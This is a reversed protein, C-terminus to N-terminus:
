CLRRCHLRAEHDFDCDLASLDIKRGRHQHRSDQVPELSPRVRTPWSEPTQSRLVPGAGAGRQSLLKAAYTGHRVSAPRRLSTEPKSEASIGSRKRKTKGGSRRRKNRAMRQATTAKVQSESAAITWGAGNTQISPADGRELPTVSGAVEDAPPAWGLDQPTPPVPKLTRVIVIRRERRWGQLRVRTAAFPRGGVTPAGEWLPRPGRAIARRVNNTLKRKFLYPPHKQSEVEHWAGIAEQGFGGDGRNRWRRERITPQSWRKEM